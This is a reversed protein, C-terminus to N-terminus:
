GTESHLHVVPASSTDPPGSRDIENTIEDVLFLLESRIQELSGHVNEVSTKIDTLSRRNNTFLQALQRLRQVRDHLFGRDPWDRGHRWFHGTLGVDHAHALNNQVRLVGM